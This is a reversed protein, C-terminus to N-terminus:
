VRAFSLSFYNAEFLFPFIPLSIERFNFWQERNFKKWSDLVAAIFFQLIIDWKKGRIWMHSDYGVKTAEGQSHFQWSEEYRQEFSYWTFPYKRIMPYFILWIVFRRLFYRYRTIYFIERKLTFRGKINSQFFLLIYDRWEEKKTIKRGWFPRSQFEKRTRFYM